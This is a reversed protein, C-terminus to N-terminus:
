SPREKVYVAIPPFRSLFSELRRAVTCRLIREMRPATRRM